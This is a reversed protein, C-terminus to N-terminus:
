GDWRPRVAPDTFRFGPGLEATLGARIARLAADDDADPPAMAGFARRIRAKVAPSAIPEFAMPHLLHALAERQAGAAPAPVSHLWRRCAAPETWIDGGDLDTPRATARLVYAVQSLRRLRSAVGTPAIGALAEDAVDVTQEPVAALLQRKTAVTIDSPFLLQVAVAQGAASAVEPTCGALAAAWRALFPGTGDIAATVFQEADTLAWRPLAVLRASLDAAAVHVAGAVDNSM